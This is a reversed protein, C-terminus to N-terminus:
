NILSHNKKQIQIMSSFKKDTKSNKSTLNPKKVYSGLDPKIINSDKETEKLKLFKNFSSIKSDKSDKTVETVVKSKARFSSIENNALNIKNIKMPGPMVPLEETDSFGEEIFIDKEKNVQISAMKSKNSQEEQIDMMFIDSDPNVDNVKEQENKSIQIKDQGLIMNSTLNEDSDDRLDEGYVQTKQRNKIQSFFGNSLESTEMNLIKDYKLSRVGEGTYNNNELVVVLSGTTLKKSLRHNAIAESKEKSFIQNRIESNLHHETAIKSIEFGTSIIESRDEMDSEIASDYEEVEPISFDLSSEGSLNLKPMTSVIQIKKPVNNIIQDPM